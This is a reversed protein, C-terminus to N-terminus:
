NKALIRQITCERVSLGLREPLMVMDVALMPSREYTFDDCGIEVIGAVHEHASPGAFGEEFPLEGEKTETEASEGVRARGDVFQTGPFKRPRSKPIKGAAHWRALAVGAGQLAPARGLFGSCASFSKRLGTRQSHLMWSRKSDRCTGNRSQGGNSGEKSLISV